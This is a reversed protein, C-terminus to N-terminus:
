RTVTTYNDKLNDFYKEITGSQTFIIHSGVPIVYDMITIEEGIYGSRVTGDDYFELTELPDVLNNPNQKQGDLILPMYTKVGLFSYRKKGVKLITNEALWVLRPLGNSHFAINYNGIGNITVAKLKLKNGNINVTQDYALYATTIHGHGDFYVITNKKFVYMINGITLHANNYFFGSMIQSNNFHIDYLSIKDDAKIFVPFYLIFLLSFILKVM